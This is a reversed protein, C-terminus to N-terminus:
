FSGGRQIIAQLFTEAAAWSIKGHYFILLHITSYISGLVFGLYFMLFMVRKKRFPDKSGSETKLHPKANSEKLWGGKELSHTNSRSANDENISHKGLRPSELVGLALAWSETGWRAAYHNFSLNVELRDSLQAMILEIPIKGNYNLLDSPVKERVAGLIVFIEKGYQGCFDRLLGECRIPDYCLSTGYRNIIECLKRRPINNM